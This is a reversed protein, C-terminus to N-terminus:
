GCTPGVQVVAAVMAGRPDTLWVEGDTWRNREDLKPPALATDAPAGVLPHQGRRVLAMRAPAQTRGRLSWAVRGMTWRPNVEVVPWLALGTPTRHVLADVGVPGRHGAAALRPGLQAWLRRATRGLRDPDRGDDLLWRVLSQDLGRQPPGLHAGAFRGDPHTDFRVTGRIQVTGDAAVDAHFSLDLVRDLWPGVTVQGHRELLGQLRAQEDPAPRQGGRLVWRHQGSASWDGKVIVDPFGQSGLAAQHALIADLHNCAVPVVTPPSWFPEPSETLFSRLADLAWGKAGLGPDRQPPELLLDRARADAVPSWGWPQADGLTRGVLHGPDSVFQVLPLGAQYRHALWDPRPTDPVLVIDGATALVGPLAALDTALRAIGKKPAYPSATRQAHGAAGEADPHFWWVDAPRGRSMGVTQLQDIFDDPLGARVRATRDFIPGVARAPTMPEATHALFTQWLTDEDNKWRKAWLVGHRVHSVEEAYVRDLIAATETDGSARLRKSWHAAFDLNAQELVLGMQVIFTLPDPPTRLARWFFDSLPLDALHVGLAEMRDVYLMLHRQEDAMIHALGRRFRRDANPFRLLALAMLELAQLEHNAMAHLLRGRVSAEGLASFTPAPATSPRPVLSIADSRGPVAPARYVPGPEDDSFADLPVCKDARLRSGELIRLALDRLQPPASM